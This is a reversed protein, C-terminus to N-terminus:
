FGTTTLDATDFRDRGAAPVAQPAPPSTKPRGHNAGGWRALTVAVLTHIPTKGKRDWAFAGGLDRKAVDRAADNLRIDDGRHRFRDQHIDDWIAGCAGAMQRATTTIAEISRDALGPLLSAAAGSADIILACPDHKRALRVLRDLVWETNMLAGTDPDVAGMTIDALVEGHWRGDPRLGAAAIAVRARNPTMDVAFAVPDTPFSGPDACAEWANADIVPDEEVPRPWDGVGCREIAFERRGMARYENAVHEVQIRGGLAPNGPEWLRPDSLDVTGAAVQDMTIEPSWELYCLSPDGGALGRNRVDTLVHGHDHELQDVASGVYWVQPDPRASMTPLLAAHAATSYYMAEDVIVSDGTFGRGGGGSRTRFRLRQGTKLEIGETGHSNSVRKIQRSLKPTSEILHLVRLFAELATDFRHASHIIMKEGLLFLGALQRAELVGGKGNQRAVVLGVEWAAFRGDRRRGLAHELVLQQWPDLDLGAYFALDIARHALTLDAAPPAALIRPRQKGRLEPALSSTM